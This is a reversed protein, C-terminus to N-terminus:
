SLGLLTYGREDSSPFLDLKRFMTNGLKKLIRSSPCLGSVGTIGLAMCWRWFGKSDIWVQETRQIQPESSASYSSYPRRLQLAMYNQFLIMDGVDEPHQTPGRESSCPTAVSSPYIPSKDAPRRCIEAQVRPTKTVEQSICPYYWLNPWSRKTGWGGTNM